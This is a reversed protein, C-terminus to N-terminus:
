YSYISSLIARYCVGAIASFVTGLLWRMWSNNDKRLDQIDTKFELRLDKTSKAIEARIDKSNADLRGLMPLIYFGSKLGRPRGPPNHNGLDEQYM